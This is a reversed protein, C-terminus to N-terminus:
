LFGWKRFVFVCVCVCVEADKRLVYSGDIIFLTITEDHHPRFPVVTDLFTPDLLSAHNSSNESYLHYFKKYFVFTVM